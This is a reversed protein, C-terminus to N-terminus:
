SYLLRNITRWTRHTRCLDTRPYHNSRNIFYPSTRIARVNFLSLLSCTFSLHHLFCNLIYLPELKAASREEINYLMTKRINSNQARRHSEGPPLAGRFHLSLLLGREVRTHERPLPLRCEPVHSRLREQWRPREIFRDLRLGSWWLVILWIAFLTSYFNFFHNITPHINHVRLSLILVLSALWWLTVIYCIM